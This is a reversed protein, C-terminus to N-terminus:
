NIKIYYYVAINKPRTEIDGGGDIKVEHAHEGASAAISMEASAGDHSGSKVGKSLAKSYVHTHAGASGANVAFEKNPLCTADSQLSGAKRGKGEPDKYNDLRPGVLPDFQNLGRLFISRLDPLTKKGTLRAYKSETSIKRGDAPMWFDGAEKRFKEFPLISAIVTGVPFDIPRQVQELSEIDSQLKQILDRNSILAKNTIKFNDDLDQYINVEEQLGYFKHFSKLWTSSRM